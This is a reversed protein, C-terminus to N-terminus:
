LCTSLCGKVYSLGWFLLQRIYVLNCVCLFAISFNFNNLKHFQDIKNSKKNMGVILLYNKINFNVVTKKYIVWM